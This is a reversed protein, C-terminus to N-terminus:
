RSRDSRIVSQFLSARDQGILAGGNPPDGGNPGEQVEAPRAQRVRSHAWPPGFKGPQQQLEVVRRRRGAFDAIQALPDLLQMGAHDPIRAVAALLSLSVAWGAALRGTPKLETVARVAGM